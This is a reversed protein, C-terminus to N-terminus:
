KRSLDSTHNQNSASRYPWPSSFAAAFSCPIFSVSLLLHAPGPVWSFIVIASLLLLWHTLHHGKDGLLVSFQSGAQRCPLCKTGKLPSGILKVQGGRNRPGTGQIGRSAMWGGRENGTTQPTRIESCPKHDLSALASYGETGAMLKPILVYGLNTWHSERGLCVLILADSFCFDKGVPRSASFIPQWGLSASLWKAVWLYLKDSFLALVSFASGRFVLNQQGAYASKPKTLRFGDRSKYTRSIICEKKGNM